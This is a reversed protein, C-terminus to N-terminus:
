KLAKLAFSHGVRFFLVEVEVGKSVSKRRHFPCSDFSKDVKGGAKMAFLLRILARHRASVGHTGLRRWVTSGCLRIQSLVCMVFVFRFFLHCCYFFEQFKSPGDSIIVGGFTQVGFFYFGAEFCCTQRRCARIELQPLNNVHGVLFCDAM